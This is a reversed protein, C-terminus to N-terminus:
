KPLPELHVTAFINLEEQIGEEIRTAISHAKSLHMDGAMQVHFTLETHDGYRHMHIHHVGVAESAKEAAIATIRKVLDEGPEEGILPNIADKAIEFTAYLILLAVLLGMVGDIWWVYPGIVIGIIIIVSAIADSRHHWGDAKLSQRGTKRYSWYAFQALGEKVAVSAIFIVLALPKFSAAERAILKNIADIGFKVGVVALMVSIVLSAVLEARGHGFPHEKDGPKAGTRTGVIVVLSTLSDSLTHWADAIIAISGTVLGAWYKLIFLVSNIVISFIGELYALM